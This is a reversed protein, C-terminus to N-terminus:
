NLDVKVSMGPRVSTDLACKSEPACPSVVRSKSDQQQDEGGTGLVKQASARDMSIPKQGAIQAGRKGRCTEQGRTSPSRAGEDLRVQPKSRRALLLQLSARCPGRQSYIPNGELHTGSADRGRARQGHVQRAEWQVRGSQRWKAGMDHLRCFVGVTDRLGRRAECITKLM